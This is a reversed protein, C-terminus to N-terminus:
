SASGSRRSTSRSRGTWKCVSSTRSGGTASPSDEPYIGNLPQPLTQLADKAAIGTSFFAAQMASRTALQLAILDAFLGEALPVDAGDDKVAAEFTKLDALFTARATALNAKLTKAAAAHSTKLQALASAADAAAALTPSSATVVLVM